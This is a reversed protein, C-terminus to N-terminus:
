PLDIVVEGEYMMGADRHEDLYKLLFPYSPAVKENFVEQGNVSIVLPEAYDVLQPALFVHFQKVNEAKVDLNNKKTWTADLAGMKVDRERKPEGGPAVASIPLKGDGPESVWLWRDPPVPFTFDGGTTSRHSSTVIRQPYANRRHQLLWDVALRFEESPMTGHDCAVTRLQFKYDPGLEKLYSAANTANPYNTFQEGRMDDKGHFIYIPTNLMCPWYVQFWSGGGPAIAAFHQNMRPGIRYSGIGGMSYGSLYIRNPDINVQSNVLKILEKLMVENKKNLWFGGGGLNLSTPCVMVVPADEVRHNVKMYEEGSGKGGGGGHLGVVLPWPVRPDYVKPISISFEGPKESIDKPLPLPVNHKVGAPLRPFQAPRIVRACDDFTPLPLNAAAALMKEKEAADTSALYSQLIAASERIANATRARDLRVALRRDSSSLKDLPVRLTKDDSARRLVASEGEIRLLEAEVTYKGDASKWERVEPEAAPCAAKVLLVILSLQPILWARIM